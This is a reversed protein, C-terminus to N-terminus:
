ELYYDKGIYRICRSHFRILEFLMHQQERLVFNLQKLYRSFFSRWTLELRCRFRLQDLSEVRNKPM